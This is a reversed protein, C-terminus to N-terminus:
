RSRAEGVSVAAAFREDAAFGNRVRRVGPDVAALRRDAALDAERAAEM